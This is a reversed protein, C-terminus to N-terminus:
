SKGQILLKTDDSIASSFEVYRCFMLIYSHCMNHFLVCICIHSHSGHCFVHIVEMMCENVHIDRSVWQRYDMDYRSCQSRHPYMVGYAVTMGDIHVVTYTSREVCLQWLDSALNSCLCYIQCLEWGNMSYHHLISYGLIFVMNRTTPILRYYSQRIKVVSM